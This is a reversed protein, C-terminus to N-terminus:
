GPVTGKYNLMHLPQAKDVSREQITRSPAKPDNVVHGTYGAADWVACTTVRNRAQARSSDPNRKCCRTARTQETKSPGASAGAYLDDTLM